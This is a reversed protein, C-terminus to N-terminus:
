ISSGDIFYLIFSLIIMIIGIFYRREQRLFIDYLRQKYKQNSMYKKESMLETTENIIDIITALTGNYVDSITYDPIKKEVSIDKVKPLIDMVQNFKKEIKSEILKDLKSDEVVDNNNESM